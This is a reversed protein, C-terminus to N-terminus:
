LKNIISDNKTPPPHSFPPDRIFFVIKQENYFRWGRWLWHDFHNGLNEGPHPILNLTLRRPQFNSIIHLVICNKRIYKRTKKM